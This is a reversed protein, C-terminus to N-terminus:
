VEPLIADNLVAPVAALCVELALLALCLRQKFPVMMM